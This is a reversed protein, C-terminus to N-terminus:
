CKLFCYRCIILTKKIYYYKRKLSLTYYCNHNIIKLNEQYNVEKKIKM